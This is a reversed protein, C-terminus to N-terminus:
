GAPAFQQGYGMPPASSMSPTSAIPTPSPPPVAASLGGQPIYPALSPDAYGSAALVAGGSINTPTLWTLYSLHTGHWYGSKQSEGPPPPPIQTAVWVPKTSLVGSEAAINESPDFAATHPVGRQSVTWYGGIQVPAGPNPFWAYLSYGTPIGAYAVFMPNGVTGPTHSAAQGSHLYGLGSPFEVWQGTGPQVGPPPPITAVISAPLSGPTGAYNGQTSPLVTQWQYDKFFMQAQSASAGSSAASGMAFLAIIAAGGLLLPNM